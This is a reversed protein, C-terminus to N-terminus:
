QFNIIEPELLAYNLHLAMLALGGLGLCWDM